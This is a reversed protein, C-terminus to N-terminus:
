GATDGSVKDDNGWRTECRRSGLGSWSADYEVAARGVEQQVFASRRSFRSSKNEGGLVSCNGAPIGNHVNGSAATRGRGISHQFHVIGIFAGRIAGDIFAHRATLDIPVAEEI